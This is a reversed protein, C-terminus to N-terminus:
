RDSQIMGQVQKMPQNLTKYNKIEDLHQFSNLM